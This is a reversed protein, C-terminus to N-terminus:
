PQQVLISVTNGTLNTVALGLRGSANFDGVAISTPGGEGTILPGTAPSLEM